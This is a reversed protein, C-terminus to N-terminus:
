DIMRIDNVKIKEYPNDNGDRRASAIRDVVDLGSVIQGFVTYGAEDLGPQAAVCIYFQSGSSRKEPNSTRAAALSGRLHPASIEAPQTYGPGGRGDNSRIKDRSNPDGGQIMFGPIVRHFTTGNYFGSRALDAFNTVHGPAIDGFLELTIDGYDTEIRAMRRGMPTVLEGINSASQNGDRDNVTIQYFYKTKHALPELTVRHERAAPGSKVEIDLSDPHFGYRVVGASLASTKWRIVAMRPLRRVFGVRTIELGDAKTAVDADGGCGFFLTIATGAILTLRVANAFIPKM